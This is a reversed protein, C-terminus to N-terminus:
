ARWELVEFGDVRAHAPHFGSKEELHDYVESSLWLSNPRANKQMHGAVDIAHDAVKELRSDEFIIVDGENLGCRLRFPQGLENLNTNLAKLGKLVRQAAVVAHRVDLYCVM